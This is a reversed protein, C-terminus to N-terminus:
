KERCHIVFAVGVSFVVEGENEGALGLWLM